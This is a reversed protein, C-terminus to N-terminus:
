RNFSLSCCTGCESFVSVPPFSRASPYGPQCFQLFIDEPLIEVEPEIHNGTLLTSWPLFNSQTTEAELAPCFIIHEVSLPDDKLAQSVAEAGDSDTILLRPTCDQVRRFIEDATSRPNTNVMIIGTKFCAQAIAIFEISNSVYTIVRDRKKLGLDQFANAIQVALDNCEQYTCIQDGRYIYPKDPHKNVQQLFMEKLSINPIPFSYNVEPDKIGAWKERYRILAQEFEPNEKM